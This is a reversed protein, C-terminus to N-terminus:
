EAAQKTQNARLQRIIRFVSAQNELWQKIM